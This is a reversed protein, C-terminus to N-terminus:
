PGSRVLAHRKRGASLRVGRGLADLGVRQNPDTVPEGDLKAGGDEILRKAAKGSPALGALVLLQAVLPTAGTDVWTFSPLQDTSGNGEFVARAALAAQAATEEGHVLATVANALAVKAEATESGGLAALRACEAVPIETFLLLFRGVDADRTNRWFQWFDFPSTRRADLWVAGQATKGMKSGDPNTLLPSTLGHLTLGASKRGLHIGNV